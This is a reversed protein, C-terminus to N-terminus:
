YLYFSEFKAAQWKNLIAQASNNIEDRQQQPMKEFIYDVDEQCSWMENDQKNMAIITAQTTLALSDFYVESLLEIAGNVSGYEAAKAFAAQKETVDNENQYYVAMLLYASAIAKFETETSENITKEAVHKLQSYFDSDDPPAQGIVADLLDALTYQSYAHTQENQPTTIPKKAFLENAKDATVAFLNVLQRNSKGNKWGTIPNIDNMWNLFRQEFVALRENILESEAVCGKFIVKITGNFRKDPYRNYRIEWAQPEAVTDGHQKALDRTVIEGYRIADDLSPTDITIVLECENADAETPVFEHSITPKEEFCVQTKSEAPNLELLYSGGIDIKDQFGYFYMVGTKPHTFLHKSPRISDPLQYQKVQQLSTKDFITLTFSAEHTYYILNGVVEAYGRGRCTKTQESHGSSIFNLTEGTEPNLLYVGEFTGVYLIGEDICTTDLANVFEKQWILEGTNDDLGVLLGGENYTGHAGTPGVFWVLVNDILHPKTEASYGLVKYPLQFAWLENLKSDFKKFQKRKHKGYIFKGIVHEVSIYPDLYYIENKNHYSYTILDYNNKKDIIGVIFGAESEFMGLPSILFDPDLELKSNIFQYDRNGKGILTQNEGLLNQSFVFKDTSSYHCISLGDDNISLKSDEILTSFLLNSESECFLQYYQSSTLYIKIM